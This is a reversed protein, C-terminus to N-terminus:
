RAGATPSEAPKPLKVGTSDTGTARPGQDTPKVADPPENPKGDSPPKGPASARQPPAGPPGMMQPMPFPKLGVAVLKAPDTERWVKMHHEIHVNVAQWLEPNEAAERSALLAYHQDIHRQHDDMWHVPVSPVHQYPMAPPPQMGNPLPPQPQPQETAIPPSKLLQEDEWKIRMRRKRSADYLPKAQGSVVIENIQAPDTIAGPIKLAFEALQLRGAQTRMMPNSTKVVVGRVGMLKDRTFTDLYPREDAGAIRVVFPHSAYQKLIDLILNALQERHADVAAQLASNYELAISHFLAAMTGSTISADPDGRAVSNLGSLSQLRKGLYELFPMSAQPVAALMVAEPAKTGPRRTLVRMGNAIADADFDTGEEASICQRGFTSLNSAIDSTIQDQMDNVSCMDWSDAYGLSTGLYEAPCLDVIPIRTYPLPLDLLPLDGVYVIYRGKEFKTGALAPSPAHYFHKVILEDGNTAMQDFGFLTEVAYEDLPAMGLIAKRHEPFRGALEWKSRRQRVTKWLHEDEDEITPECFYDWPALSKLVIKGSRVQRMLQEGTEPDLAPAKSHDPLVRFVPEDVLEGGNADWNCWTAGKGFIVAREVTKREKREGYENQYVYEIVGDATEAQGISDYDSNTASCEFAPRNGIAMTILQKSFSRVENVRFRLLEGQPGDTGVYQTVWEGTDVDKGYYKSRAYRWMATFGNREAFDFYAAQKKNLEAVVDKASRAAWYLEAEPVKEEEDMGLREREEAVLDTATSTVVRGLM